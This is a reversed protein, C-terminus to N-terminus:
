PPFRVSIEPAPADAGRRQFLWQWSFLQALAATPWINHCDQAAAPVAHWRGADADPLDVSTDSRLLVPAADNQANQVPVPGRGPHVPAAPDLGTDPVYVPAFRALVPAPASFPRNLFYRDPAAIQFRHA